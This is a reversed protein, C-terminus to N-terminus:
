DALRSTIAPIILGSAVGVRWVPRRTTADHAAATTNFTTPTTTTMATRRRVPPRVKRGPRAARRPSGFRRRVPLFRLPGDREPAFSRM